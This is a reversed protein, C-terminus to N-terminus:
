GLIYVYAPCHKKKKKWILKCLTSPVIIINNNKMKKKKGDRVKSASLSIAEGGGGM